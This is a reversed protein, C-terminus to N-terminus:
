TTIRQNKKELRIRRDRPGQRVTWFSHEIRSSVCLAWTFYCFLWKSLWLLALSHFITSLVGRWITIRFTKVKTLISFRYKKTTWCPCTYSRLWRDYVLTRSRRCTKKVFLPMKDSETLQVSRRRIAYRRTYLNFFICTCQIIVMEKRDAISKM